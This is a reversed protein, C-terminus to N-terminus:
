TWHYDAYAELFCLVFPSIMIRFKYQYHYQILLIIEM